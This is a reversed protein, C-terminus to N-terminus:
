ILDFKCISNFVARYFHGLASKIQTIDSEEQAIIFAFGLNVFVSGCFQSAKYHNGQSNISWPIQNFITKVPNLLYGM